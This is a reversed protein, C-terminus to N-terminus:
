GFLTQVGQGSTSGNQWIRGEIGVSDSPAWMFRRSRRHDSNVQASPQSRPRSAIAVPGPTLPEVSSQGAYWARQTVLQMGVDVAGSLQPPHPTTQPGDSTHELPWQTAAQRGPSVGHSRAQTSRSDSERLQPVHPVTQMSPVPQACPLQTGASPAVFAAP